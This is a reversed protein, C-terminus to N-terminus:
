ALDREQMPLIADSVHPPLLGPALLGTHSSRGLDAWLRRDSALPERRSTGPRPNPRTRGKPPVKPSPGPTSEPDSRRSGGSYAEPEALPNESRDADESRRLDHVRSELEYVVSLNDYFRLVHANTEYFGRKVSGPRLDSVRLRTVHVGTLSMTVAVSFFAMAATMALRPQLLPQGLPQLRAALRQRFPLVKGGSSVTGETHPHVDSIAMGAPFEARREKLEAGGEEMRAVGAERSVPLPDLSRQRIAADGSTQALIRELLDTAPEPQHTRLMGLWAAGRQADAYTSSCATCGLLHADFAAQDEAPLAGDVADTVMAEFRACNRIEGANPLRTSGIQNKQNFDAM